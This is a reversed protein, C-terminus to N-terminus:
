FLPRQASFTVPSFGHVSASSKRKSSTTASRETLRHLLVRSPRQLYRFHSHQCSYRYPPPSVGEGFSWPNRSLTLRLLTLRGRLRPPCAYDIPVVNINTPRTTTVSQTVQESKNSQAPPFRNWSIAGGYLGYGFGVCTTLYLIGLRKLSSHKFSSPLNCAYSRFFRSGLTRLYKPTACVLPLSQKDFVCPEAFDALRRIPDSAQRHQFTLLLPALKSDFGWYVAATVIVTRLYRFEKDPYTGVQM